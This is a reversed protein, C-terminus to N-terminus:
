SGHEGHEKGPPHTAPLNREEVHEVVLLATQPLQRAPTVKEAAPAVDHVGQATHWGPWPRKWPISM